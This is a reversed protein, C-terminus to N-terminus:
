ESNLIKDPGSTAPRTPSEDPSNSVSDKNAEICTNIIYLNYLQKM